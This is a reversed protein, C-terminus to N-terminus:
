LFLFTKHGIFPSVTFNKTPYHNVGKIVLLGRFIDELRPKVNMGLREQRFSTQSM